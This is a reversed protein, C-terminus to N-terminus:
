LNMSVVSSAVPGVACAAVAVVVELGALVTPVGDAVSKDTSWWVFRKAPAMAPAVGETVQGETSM